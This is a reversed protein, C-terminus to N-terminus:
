IQQQEQSLRYMRHYARALYGKTRVRVGIEAIGRYIGLYSYVLTADESYLSHPFLRHVDCSFHLLLELHYSNKNDGFLRTSLITVSKSINNNITIINLHSVQTMIVQVREDAGASIRGVDADHSFVAWSAAELHTRCQFPWVWRFLM